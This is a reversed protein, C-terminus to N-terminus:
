VEITRMNIEVMMTYNYHIIQKPRVFNVIKEWHWSRRDPKHIYCISSIDKTWAMPLCASNKSKIQLFIALLQHQKNIRISPNVGNSHMRNPLDTTILM